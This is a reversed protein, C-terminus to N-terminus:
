ASERKRAEEVGKRRVEAGLKREMEGSNGNERKESEKEHLNQYCAIKVHYFM